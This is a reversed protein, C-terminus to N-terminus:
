LDGSSPPIYIRELQLYEDEFYKKVNGTLYKIYM